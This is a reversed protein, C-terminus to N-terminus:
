WFEMPQSPDRTTTKPFDKEIVRRKYDFYPIIKSVASIFFEATEQNIKSDAEHAVKNRLLRLEHLQYILDQPLDESIDKILDFINQFKSPTQKRISWERVAAYDRISKELYIWSVLIAGRSSEDALKLYMGINGQIEPKSDEFDKLDIDSIAKVPHDALNKAKESIEVAGSGYTIKTIRSLLEDVRAKFIIIFILIFVPWVLATIIEAIFETQDM